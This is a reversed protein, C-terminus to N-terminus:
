QTNTNNQVATSSSNNLQDKIHREVVKRIYSYEQSNSNGKINEVKYPPSIIVKNEWVVIDSSNWRVEKITKGIAIFLRQGEPSVNASMAQLTRKKDDIQNRIRTNLRQLNLSQPVEPVTTVEKKVILESVLTLNVLHVDHAPRLGSIAPCKLILMKSQPDFAMVEGELEKNYCTKCWVTSGPAVQTQGADRVISSLVDMEKAMKDLELLEEESDIRVTIKTGGYRLWRRLTKPKNELAKAYAAVSAHGCQAAVKGKQMKLDNRVALILRYEDKLDPFEFREEIPVATPIKTNRGFKIFLYTSTIGFVTGASFAALWSNSIILGM